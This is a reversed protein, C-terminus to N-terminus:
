SRPRGMAGRRRGRPPPAAPGRVGGAARRSGRRAPMGPGREPAGGARPRARGPVPGPIPVPGATPGPGGRGAGLGPRASAASGRRPPAPSRGRPVAREGGPGPGAPAAGLAPCPRGAGSPRPESPARVPSCRWRCWWRCRSGAAGATDALPRLAGARRGQRRAGGRPEPPRCRSGGWGRPSRRPRRRFVGVCVCGGPAGDRGEPAGRLETGGGGAGGRQRGGCGGGRAGGTAGGWGQGPSGGGAAVATVGGCLGRLPRGVAGVWRADGGCSRGRRGRKSRPKDEVPGAATPSRGEEGAPGGEGCGGGKCRGLVRRRREKGLTNERERAKGRRLALLIQEGEPPFSTQSGRSIIKVRQFARNALTAETEEWREFGGLACRLM